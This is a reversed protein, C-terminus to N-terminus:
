DLIVTGNRPKWQQMQQQTIGSHHKDDYFVTQKIPVRISGEKFHLGQDLTDRLKPGKLGSSSMHSQSNMRNTM